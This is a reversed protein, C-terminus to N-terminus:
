ITILFIIIIIVFLFCWVIWMYFLNWHWEKQMNDFTVSICWLPHLFPSFKSHCKNRHWMRTKCGKAEYYWPFQRNQVLVSWFHPQLYKHAFHKRRFVSVQDTVFVKFMKIVETRTWPDFVDKHKINVGWTSISNKAVGTYLKTNTLRENNPIVYLVFSHIRYLHCCWM